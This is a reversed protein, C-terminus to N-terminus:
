KKGDAQALADLIASALDLGRGDEAQVGTFSVTFKEDGMSKWAAVETFKDRLATELAELAEANERLDLADESIAARMLAALAEDRERRADGIKVAQALVENQLTSIRSMTEDLEHRADDLRAAQTHSEAHMDEILRKVEDREETVLALAARLDDMIKGQAHITDRLRENEATVRALAAEMRIYDSTLRNCRRESAENEAQLARIAESAHRATDAQELGPVTYHAMKDLERLLEDYNEAM